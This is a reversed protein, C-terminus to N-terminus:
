VPRPRPMTKPRAALAPRIPAPKGAPSKKARHAALPRPKLERGRKESLLRMAWYLHAQDLRTVVPAQPYIRHVIMPKSYGPCPLEAFHREPPRATVKGYRGPLPPRFKAPVPALGGARPGTPRFGAVPGQKHRLPFVLEVVLGLVLSGGVTAILALLRGAFEPNALSASMAGGFGTAKLYAGLAFVAALAL